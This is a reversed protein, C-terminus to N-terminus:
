VQASLYDDLYEFNPTLKGNEAITARRIVESGGGKLLETLVRELLQRGFFASADRPLESPLNDIAMVDIVEAGYPPATEGTVPDFGYVPDAIKSARLTCPLSAGPMIDCTIDAIVRDMAAAIAPAWAAPDHGADVMLTQYVSYVPNESATIDFRTASASLSKKLLYLATQRHVPTITSTTM